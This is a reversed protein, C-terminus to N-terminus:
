TQNVVGHQQLIRYLREGLFSVAIMKLLDFLIFPYVCVALAIFFSTKTLLVYQLVGCAYCALTGLLCALITKFALPIKLLHKRVWSCLAGTILVCLLYGWLFGGTPGVLVMAGSQGGGYIPLGCLGLLLFVLVSVAGRVPGLVAGILLVGLLGLSLPVPGIPIAIPSLACLCSSFLACVALSHIKKSNTRM